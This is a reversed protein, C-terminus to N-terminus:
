SKVDTFGPARSKYELAGSRLNQTIEPPRVALNYPQQLENELLASIGPKLRQELHKEEVKQKLVRSLKQAGSILDGGMLQKLYPDYKLLSIASKWYKLENIALDDYMKKSEANKAEPDSDRLLKLTLLTPPDAVSPNGRTIDGFLRNEKANAM